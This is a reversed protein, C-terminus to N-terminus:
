EQFLKMLDGLKGGDTTSSFEGHYGLAIGNLTGDIPPFLPSFLIPVLPTDVTTASNLSTDNPSNEVKKTCSFLLLFLLFYLLKQM